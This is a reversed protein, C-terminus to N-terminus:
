LTSNFFIMTQSLLQPLSPIMPAHKLPSFDYGANNVLILQVPDGQKKLANYLYMSQIKPVTTDNDGQVILFPPAGSSAYYAPSGRILSTVNNGFASQVIGMFTKGLSPDTLNTPGFMDAVAQVRSSYNLYQGANDFTNNLSSLAELSALNGGAADGLLGIHQSDIFYETANARRFRPPRRWFLVLHLL